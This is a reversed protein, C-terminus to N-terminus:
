ALLGYAQLAAVVQGVTYGGFTATDDSIGSTNAVFAASSVGTDQQAVASSGYFAVGTADTVLNPLALESTNVWSTGDYSLVNGTVPTTVTVDSLQTLSLFGDPDSFELKGDETASSVLFGSVDAARGAVTSPEMFFGSTPYEATANTDANNYEPIVVSGVVQVNAFRPSPLNATSM